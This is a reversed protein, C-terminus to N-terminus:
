SVRKFVECLNRLKVKKRRLFLCLLLTNGNVNLLYFFVKKPQWINSELSYVVCCIADWSTLPIKSKPFDFLKPFTM